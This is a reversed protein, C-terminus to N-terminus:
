NTGTALVKLLKAYAADRAAAVDGTRPEYRQLPFSNRVVARMERRDRLLGKSAAQVLVNGAATAEVPGAVVLRGTTDATLQNLLRNQAGGGVVHIVHLNQGTVEELGEVVWRYKLALSDVICRAFAGIDDPIPQGTERAVSAIKEPMEGPALFRRDDPDIVTRFPTARSALAALHEYSLLDGGAAWSRRCEQLLWLGMVNKLLRFTGEIGGENTMGRAFAADNVVPQEVEVGILSWTGSSIYCWDNGVAPVAAVASGTDHVAPAIVDVAGVGTYDALQPLLRGVKTGPEVVSPMMAMPLDFASFLKESWSRTRPNLLQTTSANTFEAAKEGSLLFTFFEGMMLLTGARALTQPMHRRAALLQYLTNIPLMQIGTEDYIDRSPVRLFAEDMMGETRRDRYHFPAGLLEDEPGLLAYDVAWTDVGIAALPGKAAAKGLSVVIEGYLHLADWHLGDFLRLPRNAFRHVEELRLADDDLTGVIGRGSEAGLDAAFLRMGKM